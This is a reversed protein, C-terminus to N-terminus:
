CTNFSLSVDLVNWMLTYVPVGYTDHPVATSIAGPGIVVDLNYERWTKRWNDAYDNSLAIFDSLQQAIGLEPSILPESKTFPHANRKVSDVLPEGIEKELADLGSSGMGFYLFGLKGGLGAGRAPDSPLHVIKHGSTLLSSVADGLARRVPPHLPYEPDEPLVGITLIKNSDNLGRWPIDASSADYGWPRQSLVTEMFLSLDDASNAMPGAVPMVGPLRLRPFPYYAQGAFPTRGATPKFGYIGCCLSPIRISGAIDTGVGLVSGRFSM